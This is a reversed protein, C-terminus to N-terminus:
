RSASLELTVDVDNDADLVARVYNRGVYPIPEYGTEGGAEVDFSEYPRWEQGDTSVEFDITAEDSVDYYVDTNPRGETELEVTFSQVGEASGRESVARFLSADAVDILDGAQDVITVSSAGGTHINIAGYIVNEDADSADSIRVRLDDARVSTKAEVERVDQLDDRTVTRILNDDGDMIELSVDFEADAKGEAGGISLVMLSTGGISEPDAIYDEEALDHGDIIWNADEAVAGQRMVLRRDTQLIVDGDGGVFAATNDPRSVAAEDPRVDDVNSESM